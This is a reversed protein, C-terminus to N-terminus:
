GTSRGKADAADAAVPPQKPEPGGPPGAGGDARRLRIRVPFPEVDWRQTILGWVGRPAKLM